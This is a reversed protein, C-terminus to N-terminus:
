NEQQMRLPLAPMDEAHNRMMRGRCSLRSMIDYALATVDMLM